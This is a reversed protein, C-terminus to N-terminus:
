GSSAVFYKQSYHDRKCTDPAATTRGSVSRGDNSSRTWCEISWLQVSTVSRQDAHTSKRRTGLFIGFRLESVYPCGLVSPNNQIARVSYSEGIEQLSLDHLRDQYQQCSKHQPPYRESTRYSLTLIAMPPIQLAPQRIM